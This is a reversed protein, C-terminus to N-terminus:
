NHSVSIIKHNKMKKKKKGSGLHIGSSYTINETEFINGNSNYWSIQNFRLSGPVIYAIDINNSDKWTKANKHIYDIVIDPINPSAFILIINNDFSNLDYLELKKKFELTHLGRNYSTKIYDQFKKIQEIKTNIKSIDLGHKAELIIFKKIKDISFNNKLPNTLVIDDVYYESDSSIIYFGDFETIDSENSYRNIDKILNSKLNTWKKIRFVNYENYKNKIHNSLFHNVEDEIADAEIKTYSGLQKSLDRISSETEKHAKKIESIYSKTEKSFENITQKLKQTEIDQNEILKNLLQKTEDYFGENIM